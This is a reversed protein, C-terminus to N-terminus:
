PGILLNQLFVMSIFSAQVKLTKGFNLNELEKPEHSFYNIKEM